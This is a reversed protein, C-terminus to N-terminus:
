SKHEVPEKDEQTGNQGSPDDRKFLRRINKNAGGSTGLVVGSVVLVVIIVAVVIFIFAIIGLLIHTPTTLLM